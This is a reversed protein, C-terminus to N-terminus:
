PQAAEPQSTSFYKNLPAVMLAQYIGNQDLLSKVEERSMFLVTLEETADLHPETIKEVDTALFCHTINTMTSPAGREHHCDCEGLRSIIEEVILQIAYRLYM